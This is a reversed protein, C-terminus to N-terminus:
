ARVRAALPQACSASQSSRKIRLLPLNLVTGRVMADRNDAIKNWGIALLELAQKDTPSTLMAALCRYDGAFQRYQAVMRM